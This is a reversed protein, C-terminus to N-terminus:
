FLVVQANYLLTTLLVSPPTFLVFFFLLHALLKSSGFSMGVGFLSFRNHSIDSTKENLLVSYYEIENNKMIKLSNM